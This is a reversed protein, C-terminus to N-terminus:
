RRPSDTIVDVGRPIAFEFDKDAMGVNEKLESFVFSSRGGQADVALLGLLGFVNLGAFAGVDATEPAGLARDVPAAMALVATAQELAMRAALATATSTQGLAPLLQQFIEIQDTCLVCAKHLTQIPKRVTQFRIVRQLGINRHLGTRAILDAGDDDGGIATARTAKM